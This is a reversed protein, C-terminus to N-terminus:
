DCVAWVTERAEYLCWRKSLLSIDSPTADVWQSRGVLWSNHIGPTNDANLKELSTSKNLVIEPQAPRM